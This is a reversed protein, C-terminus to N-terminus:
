AAAERSDGVPEIRLTGEQAQAALRQYERLSVPTFCVKDGPRLLADGASGSRWLTVPSRGVLHWGCPTELPFICTMGGAMALSGAPIKARPTERRPLALDAAVDGMYAQGPLFGLM